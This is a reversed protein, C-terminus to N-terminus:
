GGGRRCEEVIPGKNSAHIFGAQPGGVQLLLMQTCLCQERDASDRCAVKLARTDGASHCCADSATM